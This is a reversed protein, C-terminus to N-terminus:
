QVAITIGSQSNNGGVSVFLQLNGSSANAPITVNVQMLGSVFGPAEGAFTYNAPFRAGTSDVLTATVPLLPVPLQSITCSQGSPCNVKGTIGAPSTQGEGTMYVAVTSGKAAPSTAGNVTGNQNLIAGPGTGSGNQSFIAPATSSTTLNFANSSQGLYKVQAYPAFLGAIGYPVVANVQTSSVYTLPAAIGNFLVQVGGLTTTVNGNSDLTLTAPTGPGIPNSAPGFISVIEGPSVPGTAGSAASQVASITPLPATVTLTVTTTGGGAASSGPTVVITGTYSGATLSAPTTTVTLATGSAGTDGSTPTVALWGTSSNAAVTFPLSAATGSVQITATPPNAAGAQYTLTLTAPSVSITPLGTVTLTVGVTTATGSAPTLTITGTYSGAALGTPNISVSVTGGPASSSSPSASLWNGGSATTASVTFSVASQNTGVSFNQAAPVSGGSSSFTLSTSSPILTGTGGTSGVVLTVAVTQTTSTVLSITGNYTGAALGAQNVSVSLGSTTSTNLSGSPSISLWSGGSQTTASATYNTASSATVSLTQAAPATGNVAGSFSLSSSGLTLTGGSATSNTVTVVVPVTLTTNAAASSMTLNAVNVGNPLSAGNITLVFGAPTSATQQQVTLWSQSSSPNQVAIASGDSSYVQVITTFSSAGGSYSANVVPPNAFIVPSTSPTVLLSVNVTHVGGDSTTVTFSGPYPTGSAALSSVGSSVSVSISAPGSGSAPTVSLWNSGSTVSTTFSGSVSETIAQSVLSSSSGTAPQGQEWYFQLSTPAVTGSTTGSGTGVVFNIQTTQSLSGEVASVSGVYTNSVLGTPNGYVTFTTSVGATVALQQTTSSNALTLGTGNVTLTVTGSTTSTLTVTSYAQTTQGVAANMTIPAPSLTIGNGGTAGNISINVTILGSNGNSDTLQITEQYTGTTLNAISSLPSLTLTTGINAQGSLQSNATLLYSNSGSALVTFNYSTAGTSSTITVAQIAIQQQPTTGLSSNYNWNVTAPNATLSGNGTTGNVTFTVPINSITGTGGGTYTIAFTASHPGNTLGYPNGQLTIQSSASNAPVSGILGTPFSLWGTGTSDYAVNSISYNIAAGTTNTLTFSATPATGSNSALSIPNPFSASLGSGSTGTGGSGSGSGNPSVTVTLQGTIGAPSVSTLNVTITYTGSAGAPLSGITFCVQGGTTMTGGPSIALTPNGAVVVQAATFTFNTGNSNVQVCGATQGSVTAVAGGPGPYTFSQAQAAFPVALLPMFTLFLVIRKFTSTYAADM